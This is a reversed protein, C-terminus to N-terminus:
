PSVVRVHEVSPPEAFYPGILERWRVFLDSGRFGTLHADLSDWGVLLLYSSPREIGRGLQVWRCGDASSIVQRAEVFAAEFQAEQGPVVSIVAHEVVAAVPGPAATM